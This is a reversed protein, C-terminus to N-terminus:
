SEGDEPVDVVSAGSGVDYNSLEESAMEALLADRETTDMTAWGEPLDYYTTGGGGPYEVSVRIKEVM